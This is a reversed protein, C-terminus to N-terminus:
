EANGHDTLPIEPRQPWAQLCERSLDVVTPDTVLLDPADHGTESGDHERIQLGALRADGGRRKSMAHGDYGSGDSTDYLLDLIALGPQDCLGDRSFRHRPRHPPEQDVPFESM